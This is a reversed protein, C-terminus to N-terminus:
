FATFGTCDMSVMKRGVNRIEIKEKHLEKLSKAANEVTDFEVVLGQEPAVSLNLVNKLIARNRGNHVVLTIM